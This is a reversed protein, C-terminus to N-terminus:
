VELTMRYGHWYFEIDDNLACGLLSGWIAEDEVLFIHGAWQLAVNAAPAVVSVVEYSVGGLRTRMRSETIASDRNVLLMNTIVWVDGAGVTGSQLHHDGAAVNAEFDRGMIRGQYSFLQDEGRVQGRGGVDCGQVRWATGDWLLIARPHPAGTPLIEPM